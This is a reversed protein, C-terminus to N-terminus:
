TTKYNNADFILIINLDNAKIITRGLAIFKFKVYGKEEM